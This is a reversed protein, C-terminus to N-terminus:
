REQFVFSKLINNEILFKHADDFITENKSFGLYDNSSFDVLGDQVGLKRLANNAKRAELKQNLKKPLGKM